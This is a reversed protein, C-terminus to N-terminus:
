PYEKCEVVFSLLMGGRCTLCLLSMDSKCQSQVDNDDLNEKRPGGFVLGVRGRVCRAIVDRM